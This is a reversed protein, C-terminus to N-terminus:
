AQGPTAPRGFCLDGFRFTPKLGPFLWFADFESSCVVNPFAPNRESPGAIEREQLMSLYQDLGRELTNGNLVVEQGTDRAFQAVGPIQSAHPRYSDPGVGNESTVMLGEPTRVVISHNGETHGPTHILWVGEGVAVDGDLLVVRDPDVGDIGAPRYWDRQPPLLGRASEWEQRMVLLRANPLEGPRGHSGLWRRVDQTHLHDYTIYDVDEPRIGIRALWETVTGTPPGILDAARDALPGFSARLRAFFPTQAASEFDTPSALLTRLTGGAGPFQVVFMRNVIHMWPTAVKAADRLGYRVPYPARVLEVSRYFPVPAVGLADRRFASARDLVSAERRTPVAADRAGDFHDVASLDAPLALRNM